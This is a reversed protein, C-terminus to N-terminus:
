YRITKRDIGLLPKIGIMSFFLDDSKLSDVPRVEKLRHPLVFVVGLRLASSIVFLTLLQYGFLTPLHEILFGGILAGLCLAVGNIVNFYAICRTRKAPSVADFIFNSACLNFGAWAFGALIQILILFLPHHNVVWLLPLISVIPATFQIVKLNGVRDAHRGWRRMFLYVALTATITVVTYLLYSFHLDRLMFVAFFPSAINVTFNLLGVFLVFKAFNSEKIRRLFMILTFQDEKKHELPPEHMRTLFYWSMIRFIFAFLFIIAFGHYININEMTHLIFGAVFGMAVMIFGLIRNRWGFYEGRQKEPVLDSMLSGWPPMAFAGIAAFLTVLIIFAFPTTGGKLALIAMPVLMVAQFFVFTNIIKTRSGTKVTVDASPLQILAAALNPISNLIGVHFTTGGVLLLFPIFYDQTFGMMCVAFVGDLFSARLSQKVKSEQSSM